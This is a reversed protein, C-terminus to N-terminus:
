KAKRAAESGEAVAKKLEEENKPSFGTAEYLVKGDPGIVFFSPIGTIGYAEALKDNGFLLGYTFNQDKMYDIAKQKDDEFVQVGYVVVEKDKYEEHLRNIEPMARKCPGCWTAWFDLVVVKGRLGELTVEKGDPNKLTWNPATEGKRPRAPKKGASKRPENGDPGAALVAGTVAPAVLAAPGALALGTSLTLITLASIATLKM